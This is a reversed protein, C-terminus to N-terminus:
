PFELEGAVQGGAPDRGIALRSGELLWGWLGVIVLPPAKSSRTLPPDGTAFAAIVDPRDISTTFDMLTLPVIFRAMRFTYRWRLLQGTPPTAGPPYPLWEFDTGERFVNWLSEPFCTLSAGTDIIADLPAMRNPVGLLCRFQPRWVTLTGGQPTLVPFTHGWNGADLQLTPM